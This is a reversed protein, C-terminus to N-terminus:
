DGRLLQRAEAPIFGFLFVFSTVDDGDGSRYGSAMNNFLSLLLVSQEGKQKGKKFLQNDLITDRQIEQTRDNDYGQMKEMKHLSVLNSYRNYGHRTSLNLTPLSAIVTCHDQLREGIPDM